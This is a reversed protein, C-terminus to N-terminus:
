CGHEDTKSVATDQSVGVRSLLYYERKNFSHIHDIAGQM